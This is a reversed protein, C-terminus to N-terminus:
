EGVVAGAEGRVDKGTIEFGVADPVDESFRVVRLSLALYFPEVPGDLFPHAKQNVAGGLLELFRHIIGYDVVGIGRM